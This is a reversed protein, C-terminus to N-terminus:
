RIRFARPLVMSSQHVESSYYKFNHKKSIKLFRKEAKKFDIKKLNIKKSGAIFSYEGCHYSPMCFKYIATYPFVKKLRKFIEKIINEFDLFSAGLTIMIGEKKLTSFVQKYFKTSYLPFSFGEPDPNTCDIIAVDYFDKYDKVFKEGPIIHVKVRKDSFSDQCIFKLYKKSIEIVKKDIEVLDVKKIPHKLVESLVGGDGGGIILVNKPNPHSFLVPHSLMEHYIFEDKGSFQIINGLCFIRGYVANDFILAKQFFTRGKFVLKDILFCHKIKKFRKGPVMEECFWKKKFTPM